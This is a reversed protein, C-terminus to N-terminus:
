PLALVRGRKAPGPRPVPIRSMNTSQWLRRGLEVCSSNCGTALWQALADAVNPFCIDPAAQSTALWQALTERDFVRTTTAYDLQDLAQANCQQEM